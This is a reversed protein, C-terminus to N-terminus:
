ALRMVREVIDVAREGQPVFLRLRYSIIEAMCGAAKLADKRSADVGCIELRRLGSVLSARLELGNALRQPKGSLAEAAADKASLTPANTVGFREFTEAMESASAQRGLLARGDGLTLRCVKARDKPLKKWAPLLMGTVLYFESTRTKPAAAAEEEWLRTFTADDTEAWESKDLEARTMDTRGVPRMLSVRPITEGEDTMFSRASVCLAVRGSSRNRMKKGNRQARMKLADALSTPVIKDTREIRNCVTDAGTKEDTHLTTAELLRFGDARITEVGTEYHGSEKAQEVKAAVREEFEEFLANQLDIPLALTRNLFQSTAPMDQKIAGEKDRLALGTADEFEELTCCRVRNNAIAGFLDRLAARAYESELNDEARFLGQSGTERQGKTIAGLTDLRKAITSLFRKEGKVDTAVPRFVPTHAQNTRNTRGLGQVAADAKWGAELLYHIRRRQNKANKDAHYSRGTGGAESFILIRKKDDMFDQTEATNASASRNRVCYHSRGGDELRIVRRGRGTCEAVNEHGFRQVIFDLASPMAPLSALREILADRKRVAEVCQVLNGEADRALESTENGDEDLSVIHLHVPFACKLYDFVYERPTVDVDLDNWESPPIEALRRELLAENTSVIQVVAAHGAELDADIAKVLSPCKMAMLLHNFFRQKNSEFASKAVAKASPNRTKGSPSTVNAATLAEELNRHIVRFADAYADYLRIQEDTLRHELFAYEVGEYSLSRASYLGMAKLDRAIVEMAAVGGQEMCSVFDGRSGFPVSPTGWLGLREAYALNHVSTAGTASVYVVRAEPLAYQLKLGCLGQRSAKKVGRTGKSAAANAMAHAEDFIVCGDFNEGTWDTLQELRSKKGAKASSRLTAYTTFMIGESRAVEAGQKASWQPFVDLPDGGLAAWDRRADELLKDSKSIWVAKRRGSLFNDLLIGAAQRGKGCGTGDGLYWGRRYRRAGEDGEAAASVGDGQESLRFFGELYASHAEGAYVVSELQAESLIGDLVVRRPLRPRYSPKPLRVSAMAASQVLPSPHPRAGAIVVADPRYPVYVGDDSRESVKEGDREEGKEEGSLNEADAYRYALAVIEDAEPAAARAFTLSPSAPPTPVSAVSSAAVSSVSASAVPSSVSRVSPSAVIPRSPFPVVSPSESASVAPVFSAARRRRGERAALAMDLLARPTEATPLPEPFASPHKAPIKDFVSLRTAVSTGHKAYLKGSIAASYRLTAKAQLSVFSARRGPAYPSFSEGTIAVLRGGDDLRSLAAGVHRLTVDSSHGRSGPSSSFPPNMVVVSPRVSAELLDDIYEANHRSVPSDPFLKALLAARKESLENLALRGGRLLSSVALLGTGASPELVTEGEAMDAALFAAFGITLPTSFQQMAQSEESRRTHTPCLAHLREFASLLKEPPFAAFSSAFQRVFRVLAVEVADYADKRNWAGQADTGGFAETMVAFMFRSDFAKGETLKRMVADSAAFINDAYSSDSAVAFLPSVPAATFLEPTFLKAQM